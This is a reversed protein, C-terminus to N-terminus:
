QLFSNCIGNKQLCKAMKLITFCIDTLHITGSIDQIFKSLNKKLFHLNKTNKKRLILDGTIKM